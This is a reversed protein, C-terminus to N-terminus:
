LERIVDILNKAFQKLGNRNLHLGEKVLIKKEINANIITETNLQQLQQIVNDVVSTAKKNDHRKKPTSIKVKCSLVKLQIFEKLKFIKSITDSLEHDVADNTGVHLIVYDPNKELLPVLYYFMDDTKAGPFSRVKVNFKRPMRKEDIYSLMSDDAVLYTGRPWTKTKAKSSIRDVVEHSNSKKDTSYNDIQTDKNIDDIAVNCNSSIYEQHRSKIIEILQDNLVLM